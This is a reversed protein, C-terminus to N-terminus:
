RLKADTTIGLADGLDEVAEMGAGVVGSVIPTTGFSAGQGFGTVAAEGVGMSDKSDPLQYDPEDQYEVDEFLSDDMEKPEQYEVDEFLSDDFKNEAM